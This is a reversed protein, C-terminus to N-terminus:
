STAPGVSTTHWEAPRTRFPYGGVTWPLSPHPTVGPSSDVIVDSLKTRIVEVQDPTPEEGVGDLYGDLWQMFWEATM